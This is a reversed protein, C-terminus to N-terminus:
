QWRGWGRGRLPGSRNIIRPEEGDVRPALLSRVEQLERALRKGALQSAELDRLIEWVTVSIATVLVSHLEAPLQVICTEGAACVYDGVAVDPAGNTLTLTAGAIGATDGVSLADFNPEAQIVDVVEGDATNTWTGTLSTSSGVATVADCATTLVFKSPRLYWRMRLTDSTNQTAPLLRVKDGQVTFASGTRWYPSGGREYRDADELSIRPLSVAVSTSAKKLLVDRLNGASARSPIRYESVGSQITTDTTQVGYEEKVKRLLPTFIASM